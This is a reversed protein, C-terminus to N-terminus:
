REGGGGVWQSSPHQRRASEIRLRSQENAPTPRSSRSECCLPEWPNTDARNINRVHSPGQAYSTGGMLAILRASVGSPPIPLRDRPPYLSHTTPPDVIDAFALIESNHKTTGIAVSPVRYTTSFVSRDALHRMIGLDLSPKKPNQWYAPASSAAARFHGAALGMADANNAM